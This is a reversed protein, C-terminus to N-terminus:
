GRRGTGATAYGWCFCHQTRRITPRTAAELPTLQLMKKFNFKSAFSIEDIILLRTEEWLEVQEGDITRKQNLYLSSHTTEGCIHTAAVGTMATVVISRSTFHYHEM